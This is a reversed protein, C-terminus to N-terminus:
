NIIDIDITSLLAALIYYMIYIAFSVYVFNHFNWKSFWPVFFHVGQQFFVVAIM